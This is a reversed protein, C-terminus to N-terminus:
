YTITCLNHKQVIKYKGNIIWFNHAEQIREKFWHIYLIKSYDNYPYNGVTFNECYYCIASKVYEIDSDPDSDSDTCVFKIFKKDYIKNCTFCGVFISKKINNENNYISNHFGYDLCELSEENIIFSYYWYSLTQHLIIDDPDERWYNLIKHAKKYTFGHEIMFNELNDTYQAIPDKPDM